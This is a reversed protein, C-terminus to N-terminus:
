IGIEHAILWGKLMEKMTKFLFRRNEEFAKQCAVFDEQGEKGPRVARSNFLMIEPESSFDVKVSSLIVADVNGDLDEDNFLAAGGIGNKFVFMFCYTQGSAIEAVMVFVPDDIDRTFHLKEADIKVWAKTEEEASVVPGTSLFTLPLLVCLGLALRQLFRKM